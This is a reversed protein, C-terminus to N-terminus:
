NWFAVADIGSSLISFIPSLPQPSILFAAPSGTATIGIPLIFVPNFSPTPFPSIPLSVSVVLVLSFACTM